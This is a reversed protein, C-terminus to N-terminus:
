SIGFLSKRKLNIESNSYFALVSITSFFFIKKLWLSRVTVINFNFYVCIFKALTASDNLMYM